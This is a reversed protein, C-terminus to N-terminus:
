IRKEWCSMHMPDQPYIKLYMPESYYNNTLTKTVRTCKGMMFSNIAARGKVKISKERTFHRCANCNAESEHFWALSQKHAEKYDLACIYSGAVNPMIAGVLAYGESVHTTKHTYPCRFVQSGYDDTCIPKNLTM